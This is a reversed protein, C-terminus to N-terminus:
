TANLKRTSNAVSNWSSDFRLTHTHTSLVILGFRFTFTQSDALSSSSRTLHWGGNIQSYLIISVFWFSFPHSLILFPTSVSPASSSTHPLICIPIYRSLFKFFSIWKIWSTIADHLIRRWEGYRSPGLRLHQTCVRRRHHIVSV